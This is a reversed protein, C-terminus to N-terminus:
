LVPGVLRALRVLIRFWIPKESYDLSSVERCKEFDRLLMNAVETNFAEDLVVASVEFNLRLSRNDLNATGVCATQQDVVFVKQHLFGETYRFVRIGARELDGLFSFGALWPIKKDPNEPIMIRVDVGRLAALQLANRITEDPVLYPSTIWFRERARNISNLFFLTGGEITDVPGTQLPLVTHGDRPAVFQPQWVIESLNPVEQVAWYWDGLFVLQTSLVAPGVIKVHTDRWAGFRASKGLYEDGVNHGGIFASKGDVVVIKRHNRFNIQFRNARGQTTQFAAVSIGADRLSQLYRKPLAHSGIEDYLFYIKVRDEQAKRVLLDRLQGGLVDDKIIFFQIMVYRNADEIAEFIAEFTAEGNELLTVRNGRTFKRESLTELVTGYRGEEGTLTAFHPELGDTVADVFDAHRDRAERLANEYGKFTKRGFIWYLPVAFPFSLLAFTWAWAGPATRSSMIAHGVSIVAFVQAVLTLAVWFTLSEKLFEQVVWVTREIPGPNLDGVAGVTAGSEPCGISTTPSRRRSWAM